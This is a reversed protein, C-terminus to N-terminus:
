KGFPALILPTVKEPLGLRAKVIDTAFAGVTAMRLGLSAAQLYLNQDAAGAEMCLFQFGMQRYKMMTKEFEAGIVVVAPAAAMWFQGLSAAALAPRRDDGAVRVVSHNSPIYQYVGEPLDGVTGKGVVLFVQLPYIGGASAITKRTAQTVGDVPIDGNTAWLMQGAEALSVPKNAYERVSKKGVMAAEVSLKGSLRPAPLTIATEGWAPVGSIWLSVVFGLTVIHRLSIRMSM